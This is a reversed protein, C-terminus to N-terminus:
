DAILLWCDALYYNFRGFKRIEQNGLQRIKKMQQNSTATQQNNIDEQNQKRAFV